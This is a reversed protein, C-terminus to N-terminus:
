LIYRYLFYKIKNKYGPIDVLKTKDKTFKDQQGEKKWNIHKFKPNILFDELCKILGIQTDMFSTSDIYIDIKDNNFKRNFLRDYIIQYKGPNWELFKDLEQFIVKPRQGNKKEIVTLYLELVERWKIPHNNTIHFVEGFSEPNGILAQIGEAVNLGYTLTTYRDLMDESFIITKNNIARFLWDEKELTGLQLREESYTIYPRVITWNNKKSNFLINEQKGKELSYENQNLFEEDNSTDYLRDSNETLRKLSNNYVRSSSLFVYQSTSSLLIDKRDEFENTSYVMFDIIADWKKNLISKLFQINKADGQIYKVSDHSEYKSRSTVVVTNEKSLLPTLHKGMAGTGGLLLIKM